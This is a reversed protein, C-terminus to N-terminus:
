MAGTVDKAEEYVMGTRLPVHGMSFSEFNAQRLQLEMGMITPVGVTTRLM